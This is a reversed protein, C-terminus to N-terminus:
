LGMKTWNGEISGSLAQWEVAYPDKLLQCEENLEMTYREKSDYPLWEFDKFGPKGTKAFNTWAKRMTREVKEHPATGVLPEFPIGNGFLMLDLAHTAGARPSEWTFLYMFTRGQSQDAHGEAMRISPVRFWMDGMIALELDTENCGPRAKRYADLVKDWSSGSREIVRRARKDFLSGSMTPLLAAFLKAEDRCTGILLDLDRGWGTHIADVPHLPMTDDVTPLFVQPSDIDLQNLEVYTEVYRQWPTAVMTDFDGPPINLRKLIHRTIEKAQEQTHAAHGGSQPIARHLLGKSLPSAIVAGTTAGGGSEGFLTVQNPDGGFKEINEQVWELVAIQDLIGFNGAGREDNFFEGLYMFGEVGLRRNNTVLVIGEKAIHTGDYLPVAGSGSVQGGGHAFVMVPLGRTAPDPTWINLSLCDEGADPMQQEFPSPAQPSIPGYTTAERIGSWPQVRQPPRFRNKGFPAQAYPVGLFANIEDKKYGKLKGYQTKIM